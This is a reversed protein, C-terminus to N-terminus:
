EKHTTSAHFARYLAGLVDLDEDSPAAARPAAASATGLGQSTQTDDMDPVVTQLIDVAAPTGFTFTGDDNATYDVQWEEGNVSYVVRDPFTAIVWLWRDSDDDVGLLDELADGLADSLAEYSGVIAKRMTLAKGGTSVTGGAAQCMAGLEAASNHISQIRRMDSSSNRRGEKTAKSDLIVAEPNAPVAVFAGNLLERVVRVGSGASKTTRRLFAVSTHTIHGEKVLTRVTQAHPTSAYEGHVVLRGQEDLSPVGSGVTKEVSMGHDSDFNIRGPLPQAWEEAKVEEGDRDLTPTSLVVSFTGHPSTEDDPGPAVPAAAKLIVEPM